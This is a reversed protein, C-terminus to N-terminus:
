AEDFLLVIPRFEGLAAFVFLVHRLARNTIDIHPLSLKCTFSVGNVQQLVASVCQLKSCVIALVNANAGHLLAAMWLGVNQVLKLVGLRNRVIVMAAMSSIVVIVNALANCADFIAPRCLLVMMAHEGDRQAHAFRVRFESVVVELLNWVRLLECIHLPPL